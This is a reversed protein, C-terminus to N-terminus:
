DGYTDLIDAEDSSLNNFLAIYFPRRDLRMVIQAVATSEKM